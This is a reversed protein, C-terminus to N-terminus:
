PTVAGAPAPAVGSALVASSVPADGTAHFAATAFLVVGATITLWRDLRNPWAM